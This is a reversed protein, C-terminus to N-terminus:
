SVPRHHGCVSSDGSRRFWESEGILVAATNVSCVPASTSNRGRSASATTQRTGITLEYDALYRRITKLEASIAVQSVFLEEALEASKIYAESSLLRQLIYHTRYQKAFHVSKEFLNKESSRWIAKSEADMFYGLGPKKRIYIGIEELQPCMKELDKRVTKASVQLTEAIRGSALYVDSAALCEVIMCYRKEVNDM